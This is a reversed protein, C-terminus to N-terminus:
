IKDWRAKAGKLGAKRFHETGYKKKTTEGGIRGIKKAQDQCTDCLIQHAFMEVTIQKKEM